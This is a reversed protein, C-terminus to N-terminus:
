PHPQISLRHQAFDFYAPPLFAHCGVDNDAYISANYMKTSLYNSVKDVVDEPSPSGPLAAIVSDLGANNRNGAISFPNIKINTSM